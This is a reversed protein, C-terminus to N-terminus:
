VSARIYLQIIRRALMVVRGSHVSAAKIKRILFEPSARHVRSHMYTRRTTARTYVNISSALASRSYNSIPASSPIPKLKKRTRLVFCNFNPSFPTLSSRSSRPADPTRVTTNIPKQLSFSPISHSLYIHIRHNIYYSRKNTLPM